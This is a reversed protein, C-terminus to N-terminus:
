FSMRYPKSFMIWFLPKWGKLTIGDDEYMETVPMIGIVEKKIEFTIDDLYWKEIFRLSLSESIYTKSTQITDYYIFDKNSGNWFEKELQVSDTKFCINYIEKISLYKVNDTEYNFYSCITNYSYGPDSIILDGNLSKKILNENYQIRIVSDDSVITHKSYLPIQSVYNDIRLYEVQYKIFDTFIKVSKKAASNQLNCHVWFLPEQGIYKDLGLSDQTHKEILPAYKIITKKIKYTTTDYEWKEVFRIAKFQTPNFKCVAIITDYLLKTSYNYNQITENRFILNNLQTLSLRKDDNDYVKLSGNFANKYLNQQFYWRKSTEINRDWWDAFCINFEYGAVGDYGFLEPNYIPVDYEIKKILVKNQADCLICVWLFLVLLM